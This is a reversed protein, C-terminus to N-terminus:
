PARAPPGTAQNDITGDPRRITTLGAPSTTLTWGLKHVATHHHWFCLNACNALSTPGHLARPRIHHPECRAAPQDCGPWACTPDRLNIARRIHPKIKDTDGLDLPLSTTGLPTGAFTATRLASALGGPGSVADAVLGALQVFLDLVQGDRCAAAEADIHALKGHREADQDDRILHHLEAGIEIIQTFLGPVLHGTVIPAIMADCTIGRAADGALWAGGDGGTGHATVTEARWMAHAQRAWTDEIASAGDMGRLEHLPIHVIATTDQGRTQPVGGSQLALKLMQELADHCRVAYPRADGADAKRKAFAELGAKLLAACSSSLSGRLVGAGDLTTALDLSCDPEEKGDEDLPAILERIEEFLGRLEALGLGGLAAAVLIEDAKAALDSDKLQGTWSMMQEAWSESILGGKLAELVLPHTRHRKAWAKCALAKGRSVKLRAQVCSTIGGFGYEEPGGAAEFAAAVEGRVAARIADVKELVRLVEFQQAAALGTMEAEALRAFVSEATELLRAVEGPSPVWAESNEM